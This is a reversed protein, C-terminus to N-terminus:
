SKFSEWILTMVQNHDWDIESDSSMIDSDVDSSSPWSPLEVKEGTIDKLGNRIDTFRVLCREVNKKRHKLAIVSNKLKLLGREHVVVLKSNRRIQKTLDAHVSMLDDAVAALSSCVDSGEM